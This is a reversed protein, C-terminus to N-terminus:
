VKELTVPGWPAGLRESGALATPIRVCGDPVQQDIAVGAAVSAGEQTVSVRDGEALGLREAEAGNLYVGFAIAERTAQLAPARRVLPDVAYIPVDGIRELGGEELRLAEQIDDARFANDPAREACLSKVEDRIQAANVYDFGDLNLLNGLVRLVKWAPRADGPPPVAGQFGQWRGEVNVHTGATEGFDGIPLLVDAVSELSPSRWASLGVVFDSKTLTAAAAAPDWTDQGPEFGLLLYARRPNGLLERANDGVQPAAGAGAVVHPLAGAVAAGVANPGAPLFGLVGGAAEAISRALGKFVSFYPSSEALAGLLVLVRDSEKLAAALAKQADSAKTKQVLGKAGAARLGLAKALGSLERLMQASSGVIQTAPHTLELTLPNIFLVRTGELAAKRLRHALLPQEKRLNSGIVLVMDQQELEAVSVGLWPYLPDQADSFDGQRLRSDIHPSGLGRTIRQALYMEELTARPSVLTAFQQADREAVERLREATLRLASDWDAEQWKGSKKVLPTLLRDDAYLGQYSFRDRDSIWTENVAENDRPHVRLLRNRRVHLHLNSGLADHNAVGDAQTLEWSRAQFRYPKSTLAGVPCLDIVNGSLEHDVTRAVYTGIRM